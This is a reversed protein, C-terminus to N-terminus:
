RVVAAGSRENDRWRPIERGQVREFQDKGRYGKGQATTARNRGRLSGEQQLVQTVQIEVSSCETQWGLPKLGRERANEMKLAAFKTEWRFPKVSSRAKTIFLGDKELCPWLQLTWHDDHLPSCASPLPSCDEGQRWRRTQPIRLWVTSIHWSFYCKQM